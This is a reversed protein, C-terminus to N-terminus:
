RVYVYDKWSNRICLCSNGSVHVARADLLVYVGVVDITM